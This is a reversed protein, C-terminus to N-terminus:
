LYFEIYNVSESELLEVSLNQPLLNDLDNTQEKAEDIDVIAGAERSFIATTNLTCEIADLQSASVQAQILSFKKM